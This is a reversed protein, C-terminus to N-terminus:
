PEQPKQWIAPDISELPEVGVVSIIFASASAPFRMTSGIPAGAPDLQTDVRGLLRGRHQMQMRLVRASAREELYTMTDVPLAYRWVRRPASAVGTVAANAPVPRPVGLAAWFLPAVEVLADIEDPPEIWQVSDAVIVATGSRGFPARYDFRLSDPPVFRLVARGRVTGKQNQFTWRLDYKRAAQPTLERVWGDVLQPDLPPLAVPALPAIRRACATSAIALAVALVAYYPVARRRDLVVRQSM